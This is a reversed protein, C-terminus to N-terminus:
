WRGVFWFAGTMATIVSLAPMWRQVYRPTRSLRWLVPLALAVILLQAIEVGINFGALMPTLRHSGAPMDLLANAFGFGHVLGFGMALAVRGRAAAASLNLLGAVVISGAIALEVPRVPLQVAGSAALGLTISHALTFGTVIRLLDGAVERPRTRAIWGDETRRLVGPLLLLLLFAIHDYGILVHWVGAGIFSGLTAFWSPTLHEVWRPSTQTLVGSTHSAGDAVDVLLSYGLSGFFMRSQVNFPGVESCEGRLTLAAYPQAQRVVMSLGETQLRCEAAGRGIALRETVYRLVRARGALLEEPAVQGDDDRDLELASQLDSLAIDWRATFAPSGAVADIDLYSAGTAHAAAETACAGCGLLVVAGRM